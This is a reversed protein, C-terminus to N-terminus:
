AKKARADMCKGDKMYMFTGCSKKAPAKAKLPAKTKQHQANAPKKSTAAFSPTIGIALALAAPFLFRFTMSTEGPALKRLTASDSQLAQRENSRLKGM